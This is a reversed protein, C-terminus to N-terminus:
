EGADICARYAGVTVETRDIWFPTLQVTRAPRENAPARPNVSGMTFRGGPLRLMGGQLPVQQRVPTGHSPETVEYPNDDAAPSHIEDPEADERPGPHLGVAGAASALAVGTAAAVIVVIATSRGELMHTAGLRNRPRAGGMSGPAADGQWSESLPQAVGCEQFM